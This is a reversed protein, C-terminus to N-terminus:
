TNAVPELVWGGAQFVLQESCGFAEPTDDLFGTIVVRGNGRLKQIQEDLGKRQATPLDMAAPAFVKPRGLASESYRMLQVLDASFGTAPRAEGFVKGAHDYRGGNAIAQGKGAVYTSFVMGTHYNYGRLESLDFYLTADPYNAELYDAIKELDNIAGIAEPYGALYECADHLAARDGAMGPLALLTEGLESDLNQQAVFQELEPVAKRQLIDRLQKDAAQDFAAANVLTRYIAVHGLDIHPARVGAQHVSDLMLRIVEVDAGIGDHGFLEVGIQMLSRADLLSAPKTHLVDGVYCLRATGRAGQRADIRAVQPTIDARVGMMRGNLQDTLKFTQLSLDNGAGTLLSELYEVLPPFVQEYGWKSYMDLLQRRLLELKAAQPPLIEDIGEPLLWRNNPNM